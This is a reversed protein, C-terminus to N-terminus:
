SKKNTQPTPNPVTVGFGLLENRLTDALGRMAWKTPSYRCVVAREACSLVNQLRLTDACSLVNQIQVRCCTREPITSGALAAHGVELSSRSLQGGGMYGLTVSPVPTHKCAGGRRSLHRRSLSPPHHTPPPTDALARM